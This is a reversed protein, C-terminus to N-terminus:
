FRCNVAEFRDYGESSIRTKEVTMTVQLNHERCPQM